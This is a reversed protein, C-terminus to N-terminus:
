AMDLANDSIIPFLSDESQKRKGSSDTLPHDSDVHIFAHEVDEMRELRKQLTDGIYRGVRMPVHDPITIFVEAFCMPGIQYAVVKDVTKILPHHHASVYTINRIVEPAANEGMLARAMDAANHAWSNLIYFSIMMGGTSDMWWQLRAGGWYMFLGFSNTLVDNRHDDALTNTIPHNLWRFVIWMFFKLVITFVMICVATKTTQPAIEHNVLAMLCQGIIYLACVSMLVSFVLIGVTSVRSKGAPYKLKDEETTKSNAAAYSIIFGAIIDLCSDALSSMITYSSSTSMAIAKGTLLMLNLGFSCYTACRISFNAENKNELEQSYDPMENLEDIQNLWESVTDYYKKIENQKHIDRLSRPRQDTHLMADTLKDRSKSSIISQVNPTNVPHFMIPSSSEKGTLLYDHCRACCQLNFLELGNTQCIPCTGEKNM